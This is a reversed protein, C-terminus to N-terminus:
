EDGLLESLLMGHAEDPNEQPWVCMPIPQLQLEIGHEIGNGVPWWVAPWQIATSPASRMVSEHLEEITRFRNLFESMDPM